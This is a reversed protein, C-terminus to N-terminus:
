NAIALHARAVRRSAVRRRRPHTSVRGRAPARNIVRNSGRAVVVVVVVVVVVRALSVRAIIARIPFYTDTAHGSVPTHYSAL